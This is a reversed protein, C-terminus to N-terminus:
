SGCPIEAEIRTGEGPPSYILLTGGQAEVRDTLGSLGTGSAVTAGGVGDDVVVLRLEGSVVSAEVRVHSPSAHKVANTVAECVVFYAAAEVEVPLREDTAELEVPVPATRALDALAAGLGEDLRPPRVGAAITRLDEIARGIEDVASDLAPGLIQAERPLSRQLRRLVIGLTVLRQQAGDHLDRELRRREEYGARVVRARSEEVEALQLRVEVRLRAIEIALSAAGLVSRLLDPRDLLGPKHRLLAIEQGRHTVRTMAREDDPPDLIAGTFGDAYAESAPLRFLLEASPDRLAAALVAGVEEPERRGERVDDVFARMRRLGEYRLRDFRWDVAAQTRRRLPGFAGAVVLVALATVWSSGRGLVVGALLVVAAYLLGLTATVLAYVLTRNILRDIEYLRYRTVAVGVAIAVAAEMGLLFCVVADGPEGFVLGWVLFCVVGLPILLAAYALWLMQLREIGRSRRYRSRVAAAGVFLCAFMALWAALRLFGLGEPLRLPMPNPVDSFPEELQEALVLLLVLLAISGAAFITYPRWRPSPLRGDPFVFAVALPWAFFAPWLSSVLAAWSGGPLAGPQADLAVWAYPTAALVAALSLAGVVLIWGIPNRPRQAAILAGVAAPASIAAFLLPYLWVSGSGPVHQAAAIGDLVLGVAIVAVAALALSWAVLRPAARVGENENLPAGRAVTSAGFEMQKCLRTSPAPSSLRSYRDSEADLDVLVRQAVEIRAPEVQDGIGLPESEVDLPERIGEASM